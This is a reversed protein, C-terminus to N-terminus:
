GAPLIKSVKGLRDLMLLKTTEMHKPTPKRLSPCGHRMLILAKRLNYLELDQRFSKSMCIKQNNKSLM